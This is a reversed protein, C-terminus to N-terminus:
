RRVAEPASMRYGGRPVTLVLRPLCRARANVAAGRLLRRRRRPRREGLPHLARGDGPQGLPRGAPDRPHGDRGPQPRPGHRNQALAGLIGRRARGAARRPRDCARDRERERQAGEGARAAFRLRSCRPRRRGLRIAELADLAATGIYVVEGRGEQDGKARRITLRGSGDGAAEIDAWTLAAAESRRLLADRMTRCLALETRGRATPPTSAAIAALATETLPRAQRQAGGAAERRLGAVTRRVGESRTPDTEGAAGHAAAIAALAMGLTSAGAGAAARETLYEAVTEARAPLAQYGCGRAWDEWARWATQYNRRTNPSRSAAIARGIAEKAEDTLATAVPLALEDGAPVAAPAFLAEPFVAEGPAPPPPRDTILTREQLHSAPDTARAIDPIPEM